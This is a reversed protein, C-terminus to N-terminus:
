ELRQSEGVVRALCSLGVLAGGDAAPLLARTSAQKVLDCDQWLVRVGEENERGGALQRQRKQM